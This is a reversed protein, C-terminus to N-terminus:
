ELLREEGREHAKGPQNDKEEASGRSAVGPGLQIQLSVAANGGSTLSALRDGGRITSHKATTLVSFVIHQAHTTGASVRPPALPEMPIWGYVPHWAEAIKHNLEPVSGQPLWNWAMRAPIGASRVLAIQAYSHESCSGHGQKLVVPAADFRGDQKYVLRKRVLDYVGNLYGEVTPQKARIEDRLLTIAPDTIRFESSDNLFMQMGSPVRFDKILTEQRLAFDLKYRKIRARYARLKYEEGKGLAPLKVYMLRNGQEDERVEGEDAFEENEIKLAATEPPIAIVAERGAPLDSAAKITLDFILDDVRPSHRIAAGDPTRQTGPQVPVLRSGMQVFGTFVGGVPDATGITNGDCVIRFFARHPVGASLVSAKGTQGPVFQTLRAGAFSSWLYMHSGCALVRQTKDLPLELATGVAAGTELNYEQLKGSLLTFLRGQFVTIDTWGGARVFAFKRVLAFSAADLIQIEDKYRVFVLKQQPDFALGRVPGAAMIEQAQEGNRAYRLIVPRSNKEAALLLDDPTLLAGGFTDFSAASQDVFPVQLVSVDQWAINEHSRAYLSAQLFFLCVLFRMAFQVSVAAQRGLM